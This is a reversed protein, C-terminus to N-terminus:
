ILWWMPIGLLSAVGHTEFTQYYPACDTGPPSVMTEPVSAINTLDLDLDIPM